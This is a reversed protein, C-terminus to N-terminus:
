FFNYGGYGYRNESEDARPHGKVSIERLKEEIFEEIDKDKGIKNRKDKFNGRVNVKTTDLPQLGIFDLEWNDDKEGKSKFFYVYGEEGKVTVKVKKIFELSDKKFNFGRDYLISKCIMKQSLHEKPFLELKGIEKLNRYLYVKNVVDEALHNWISPDVSVGRSVLMCNINTQVEYDQVKKMKTFFEKVAPKKYYPMLLRAYRVLKYNGQNKYNSYYYSNNDEEKAQSTQESSIQKKLEIKAERLIQKYEKRYTRAKLKNSDVARIMLDYIPRKYPDVFTYDLLSPYLHKTLELSDYFSYFMSSVGWSSSSLPIDKEILRVMEKTSAKTRQKSLGKLIAIQYMATDESKDYLQTLFPAIRKDKLGGLDTILQVKSELHKTPFDYNSIVDMIRPADEDEFILTSIVSKMARETELSDRSKLANFFLDSKSETIKLQETTDYPTFSNYFESIFKSDQSISDLNTTLTYMTGRDIIYKKRIVRTSNTDTFYADVFDFNGDKGKTSKLLVM